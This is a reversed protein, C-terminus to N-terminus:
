DFDLTSAVTDIAFRPALRALVTIGLLMGSGDPTVLGHVKQITRTGVTLTNVSIERLSRKSNDALVMDAAQGTFTAQGKNVLQNALTETVTMSSAGTDVVMTAPYGGLSAAVNLGGQAYLFPVHEPSPKGQPDDTAPAPAVTPAPKVQPDYVTPAPEVWWSPKLNTMQHCNMEGHRDGISWALKGDGGVTIRMNDKGVTIDAIADHITYPGYKVGRNLVADSTRVFEALGRTQDFGLDWDDTPYVGIPSCYDVWYPASPDPIVPAAHAASLATASLLAAAFLTKM